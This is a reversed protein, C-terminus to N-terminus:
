KNFVPILGKPLGLAYVARATLMVENWEKGYGLGALWKESGYPTDKRWTFNWGPHRFAGSELQRFLIAHTFKRRNEDLEKQDYKAMRGALFWEGLFRSHGGMRAKAWRGDMLSWGPARLNKGNRYVHQGHM